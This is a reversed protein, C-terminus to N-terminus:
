KLFKEKEKIKKWNEIVQNEDKVKKNGFVHPHRRMMKRCLNDIVEDITFINKEKMIQSHILVQWLIDGLEEKMGEYDKKKVEEIFEETEEKLYKLISENTQKKDWPCKKRIKEAIKVADKFKYKKM